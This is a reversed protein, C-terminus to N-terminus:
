SNESLGIVNGETDKFRAYTGMEGVAIAGRARGSTTRETASM